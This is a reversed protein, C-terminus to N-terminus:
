VHTMIIGGVAQRPTRSTKELAPLLIGLRGIEDSLQAGAGLTEFVSYFYHNKTGWGFSVIFTITKKHGLAQQKLFVIFTITKNHKQALLKLFM